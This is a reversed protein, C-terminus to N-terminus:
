PLTELLKVVPELISFFQVGFSRTIILLIDWTSFFVAMWVWVWNKNYVSDVFWVVNGTLFAMWPFLATAAVHPSLLSITALMFCVNAFWKAYFWVQQSM